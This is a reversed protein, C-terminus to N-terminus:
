FMANWSASLTLDADQGLTAVTGSVALRRHACLDHILETRFRFWDQRISNGGFNFPVSVSDLVNSIGSVRSSEGDFRHVWETHGYLTTRSRLPYGGTLGLRSESATHHQTDFRAPATGGSEQYGHVRTRTGTLQWNPSFGIAHFTWVDRWDLRARLTASALDTNGISTSSGGSYGRRVDADWNGGMGLVSAILNSDTIRRDLEILGYEGSLRNHGNFSQQITGESHGMGMGMRYQRECFDRCVGAEALQVSGDGNSYVKGLDGVLWGSSAGNVMAFDMLPRHHAGNITLSNLGEFQVHTAVQSALSQNLDMLGVIGSSGGGVRAIYAEQGNASEGYGVVVSGDSNTGTAGELRTFGGMTVGASALWDAVTIMGSPQTWRFAQNNGGAFAFGVIVKGDTSVASASSSGGNQLGGLGVMCSAATWRFAQTSLTSNSVFGVVVSGDGSVGTAVSQEYSPMFGLGVMGDSQTWRFAELKFDAITGWGVIVSGDSSVGYAWSRFVGGDLDGLGTMGVSQTWRYAEFGNTGDSGGIVVLGNGSIAKANSDGSGGPLSGLSIVGDAATWRFAVFQFNLNTLGSGVIVSGDGSVGQAQWSRYTNDATNGLSTMGSSQTWRFPQTNNSADVSGGVVVLGNSSVAFAASQTAGGPLDGLGILSDQAIASVALISAIAIAMPSRVFKM